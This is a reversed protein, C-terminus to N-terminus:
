HLKWPLNEQTGQPCSTDIDDIRSNRNQWFLALLVFFPSYGHMNEEESKQSMM